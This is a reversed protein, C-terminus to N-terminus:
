AARRAGNEFTVEFGLKVALDHEIVAGKSNEWGPLMHIGTCDLMLKLDARMFDHWTAGDPLKVEAPNVVEYGMARYWTALANFAPANYEPIGTMPGSLYLRGKM